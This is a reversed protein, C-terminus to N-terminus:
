APPRQLVVADSARATNDKGRYAHHIGLAIAAAVASLRHAAAADELQGCYRLADELGFFQHAADRVLALDRPDWPITVTQRRAAYAAVNDATRTLEPYTEVSEGVLAHM